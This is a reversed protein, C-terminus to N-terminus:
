SDTFWAKDTRHSTAAVSVNYMVMAFSEIELIKEYNQKKNNIYLIIM